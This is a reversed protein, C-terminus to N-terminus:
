LFFRLKHVLAGVSTNELMESVEKVYCVKPNAIKLIPHFNVKNHVFKTHSFYTVNVQSIQFFRSM